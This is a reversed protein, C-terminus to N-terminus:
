SQFRTPKIPERSITRTRPASHIKINFNTTTLTKRGHIYIHVTSDFAAYSYRQNENHSM